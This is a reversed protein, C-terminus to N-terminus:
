TKSTKLREIGAGAFLDIYHLGGWKAHMATAFADLYRMLYYHKDTSWQGVTPIYMGDDQPQPLNLM